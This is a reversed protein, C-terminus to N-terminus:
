PTHSLRYKGVIQSVLHLHRCSDQWPGFPIEPWLETM